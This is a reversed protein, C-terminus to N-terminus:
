KRNFREISCKGEEKGAALDQRIEFKPIWAFLEKIIVLQYIDVIPQEM